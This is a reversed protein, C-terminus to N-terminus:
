TKLMHEIQSQMMSMRAYAAMVGSAVVEDGEDKYDRSGGKGELTAGKGRKDLNAGSAVIAVKGWKDGCARHM